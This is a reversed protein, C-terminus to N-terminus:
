TSLSKKLLRSPRNPSARNSFPPDIQMRRQNCPWARANALQRLSATSALNLERAKKAVLGHGCFLHCCM